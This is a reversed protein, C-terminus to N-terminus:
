KGSLIQYYKGLFSSGIKPNNSSIVGKFHRMNKVFNKQAQSSEPNEIWENNLRLVYEEVISLIENETNDIVEVGLYEFQEEFCLENVSYKTIEELNLFEGNKKWKFLKPIFLPVQAETYCDIGGWQLYNVYLTPKRFVHAIGDIGSCTSIMFECKSILYLDMLDSIDGSSGYDYISDLELCFKESVSNGVRICKYGKDCLFNIAKCFLNISSNRPSSDGYYDSSRSFFCVVKDNKKIGNKLLVENCLM